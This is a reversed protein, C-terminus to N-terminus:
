RSPTLAMIVDKSEKILGGAGGAATIMSGLVADVAELV